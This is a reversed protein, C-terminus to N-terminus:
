NNIVNVHENNQILKYVEYFVMQVIQHKIDDTFKSYIMMNAVFISGLISM